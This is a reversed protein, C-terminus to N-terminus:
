ISTIRKQKQKQKQKQKDANLKFIEPM